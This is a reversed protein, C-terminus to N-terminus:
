KYAPMKNRIDGDPAKFMEILEGKDNFRYNHFVDQYDESTTEFRLNGNIEFEVVAADNSVIRLLNGNQDYEHRYSSKSYTYEAIETVIRNDEDYTFDFNSEVGGFWDTVHIINGNSDLIYKDWWFEEDIIEEVVRGQEDYIQTVDGWERHTELGADGSYWDFVIGKRERGGASEDTFTVVDKIFSIDSDYPIKELLSANTNNIWYFSGIRCWVDNGDQYTEYVEFADGERVYGALKSNSSHKDHIELDGLAKAKYPVILPDFEEEPYILTVSINEFVEQKDGKSLIFTCTSDEENVEYNIEVGDQIDSFVSHPDFEGAMDIEIPDTTLTALPKESCGMVTTLILLLILLKKM